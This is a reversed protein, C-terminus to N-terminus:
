WEGVLEVELDLWVGSQAQVERRALDILAKVDSASADQANLFFNGHKQSIQAGGVQAGKLGAAEILRGAYDGPPNKFMSGITAGPPQTRKRYASYEEIRQRIAAPDDPWCQILVGLIVAERKERKLISSRYSYEMESNSLSREGTPTIVDVSVVCAAMDGGHAGANGYAAGGLTGPVGMAWEFGKLGHEACERALRITSAGSEAFVNGGLFQVAEAQNHVVLGSVGADSILINSGGGLLTLPTETDWAIRAATRLDDLTAAILFAEAPGGIRASTHRALPEDLCLRESFARELKQLAAPPLPM